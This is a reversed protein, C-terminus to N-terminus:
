DDSDENAASQLAARVMNRTARPTKHDGTDVRSMSRTAPRPTAVSSSDSLVEEGKAKYTDAKKVREDYKNQKETTARTKARDQPDEPRPQNLEYIFRDCFDADAGARKQHVQRRQADYEFICAMDPEVVHLAAQIEKKFSSLFWAFVAALTHDQQFNYVDSMHLIRTELNLYLFITSNFSTLIGQRVGNRFMQVYVQIIVRTLKDTTTSEDEPWVFPIALPSRSKDKGPRYRHTLLQSFKRIDLTNETKLEFTQVTKAQEFERREPIKEFLKQDPIPMGKVVPSSALYPMDTRPDHTIRLGKGCCLRLVALAPHFLGAMVWDRTDMESNIVPSMLSCTNAPNIRALWQAHETNAPDVKPTADRVITLAKEVLQEALDHQFVVGALRGHQWYEIEAPSPPRTSSATSASLPVPLYPPISKLAQVLDIQNTGHSPNTPSM